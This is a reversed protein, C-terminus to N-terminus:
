IKKKFYIQFEFSSFFSVNKFLITGLIAMMLNNIINFALSESNRSACILNRDCLMEIEFCMGRSNEKKALIIGMLHEKTMPTAEELLRKSYIVKETEDTRVNEYAADPKNSDLDRKRIRRRRRNEDSHFPGCNDDVLVYNSLGEIGEDETNSDLVLMKKGAFIDTLIQIYNSYAKLLVDDTQGELGNLISGYINVAKVKDNNLVEFNTMEIFYEFPNYNDHYALRLYDNFFEISNEREGFYVTKGDALIFIKQLLSFIESSPQHITFIVIKEERAALECLNQVVGFANFSDLGTTPEDLFIIKPDSILEVGISTRKREGGSVGRILDNGIRNNKCSQLNLDSLLLHVKQEIEPEPISLKLKATFLLIELPTMSAELVDDQMVYSSIAVLDSAKFFNKKKTDTTNTEASLVEINNLSVKGSVTLNKQQIKKSLFNL